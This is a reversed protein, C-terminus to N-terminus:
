AVWGWSFFQGSFYLYMILSPYLILRNILPRQGAIGLLMFTPFFALTYRSFSYLPKVESTPLLIFLLLMASYLGYTTGLRRFALVTTVILLLASLFDLSLAILENNRATGGMLLTNVASFLDAGPVGTEQYWYRGYITSLPPLGNWSRWLVFAVLALVPLSVALLAPRLYPLRLRALDLGARTPGRRDLEPDVETGSETGKGHQRWYEYALPVVLSWGTLRTFSALLGLIGATWFRGNRAAWLAGLSFLMFISETYPAFLFFGTPFLALYVLSRTAVASGLERSVVRHFLAFMLLCALNPIFIGALMNGAQGGGLLGGGIRIALPYLPPFVSNREDLYGQRAINLYRLADFRQWPGLLMGVIGETLPPEGLYPRVIEDPTQPIPNIALSIIAWLSLFIRLVLFIVLAHRVAPKSLLDRIRPLSRAM